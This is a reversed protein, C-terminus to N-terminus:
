GPWSSRGPRARLEQGRLWSPYYTFALGNLQRLALGRRDPGARGAGRVLFADITGTEVAKLGPPETEYTVVQPDKVSPTIEIGPIALEGRLYLEHSCSACAGIRKGDLDSPEQYPADEAVFYFNPVAYYPQTMWLRQM